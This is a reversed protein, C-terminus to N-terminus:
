SWTITVTSSSAQIGDPPYDTSAPAIFAIYNHTEGSGHAVTAMCTTGSSRVCVQEGTTQDFIMISYPTTDVPQDAVATLTVSAGGSPNPPAATLAVQWLSPTAGGVGWTVPATNSTAQVNPPTVTSGAESVYAIYTHTSPLAQSVPTSCTSGSSCATVLSGTNLDYIGIVYPTGTVTHNSTATLTASGTPLPNSISTSLTATWQDSWTATVGNSTAQVDTPPLTSGAAAIYAIYSHSGSTAHNVTATCTTGTNCSGLLTGTGQDFIELAYGFGSVSSNATATLTTSTGTNPNTSSAALSVNWTPWSLTVQGDGSRAGATITTGSATPATYSSGGGGGGADHYSGSPPLDGSTLSLDDFFSQYTASTSAAGIQIAAGGAGTIATSNATLTWGSPESTGDLWVRARVASGTVEFRVDYWQTTTGPLSANGTLASSTYNVTKGLYLGSTPNYNLSYAYQQAWGGGSERLMFAVNNASDPKWRLLMSGDAASWNSPIATMFTSSANVMGLRGTNSQVDITTTGSHNTAVTWASPWASGDAGTWSETFTPSMQLGSGGKGGGGGYYGGGGGGGAFSSANAGTGVGGGGGQAQSGSTAATGVASSGTSGASGGASATAGSGGQDSFDAGNAGAAGTSGGAGGGAGGNGSGSVGDGSGAGGGGAAVVVRNSTGTGGQRIDSSGGGGGGIGSAAGGGNWGAVGQGGAGGVNVRLVEGPTVPVTTQVRAGKGGAPSAASAAVFHSDVQGPTLSSNYVAVEDITGSFFESLGDRSGIRLANGNTSAAGTQVRAAVQTDNVYLRQINGDYTGVVHYTGGAVVAGVAAQCRQSTGNQVITFELQSGNFQLSYANAKSLVSAFSGSAPLSSPRIWAELSFGSTLNLSSSSPVQVSDNVGDFGVATDSASAALTTQGLTPENQYSGPNAGQADAATSGSAEGLRWHSVPSDAMVASRYATSPQSGGGQAGSADVTLSTVGAPVTFSQAAGTYSFTQSSTSLSAGAPAV